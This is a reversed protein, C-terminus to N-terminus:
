GPPGDTVERRAAELLEKYNPDFPETLLKELQGEIAWLVREESPHEVQVSESMRSLWEFLVVAQARTLTIPCDGASM